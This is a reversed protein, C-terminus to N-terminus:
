EVTTEDVKERTEQCAFAIAEAVTTERETAAAAASAAESASAAGCQNM